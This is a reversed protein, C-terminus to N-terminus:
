IKKRIRNLALPTIGLYSAIHSQKIRKDLGPFTKLFTYYRTEADHLIFERERSEKMSFGRELLAILLYCWCANQQLLQKWDNYNIMFFSSDELAEITFYSESGSSMATYSSVFTNEPFFGRTYENGKENMYYYRFLGKINFAFKRPIEGQKIFYAGKKITQLKVITVLKEIQDNPFIGLGKVTKIFIETPLEYHLNRGPM